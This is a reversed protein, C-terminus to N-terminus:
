KKKSKKNKREEEENIIGNIIQFKECVEPSQDYFGGSDPLCRFKECMVYLSLMPPPNMIKQGKAWARTQTM